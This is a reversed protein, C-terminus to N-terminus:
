SCDCNEPPMRSHFTLYDSRQYDTETIRILLLAKVGPWTHVLTKISNRRYFKSGDKRTYARDLDTECFKRAEVFTEIVPHAAANRKSRISDPFQLMVNTFVVASEGSYSRRPFFCGRISPERPEVEGGRM